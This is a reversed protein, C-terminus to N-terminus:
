NSTRAPQRLPSNPLQPVRTFVNRIAESSGARNYDHTFMREPLTGDPDYNRMFIGLSRHLHNLANKAKTTKDVCDVIM